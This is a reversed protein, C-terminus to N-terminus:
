HPALLESVKSDDTIYRIRQGELTMSVKMQLHFGPIKRYAETLTMAAVHIAHFIDDPDDQKAQLVFVGPSQHLPFRRDDLFDKDLTFLIRKLKRAHGYHFEDDPSRLDAQEQASLVDWRLKTRVREAVSVPIDADFYARIKRRSMPISDFNKVADRREVEPIDHLHVKHKKTM